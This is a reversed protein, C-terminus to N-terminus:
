LWRLANTKTAFIAKPQKPAEAGLTPFLTAALYRRLAFSGDSVCPPDFDFLGSSSPHTSSFGTLTPCCLRFISPPGEGRLLMAQNKWYLGFLLSRELAQPHTEQGAEVCMKFILCNAASTAQFM